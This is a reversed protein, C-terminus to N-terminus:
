IADSKILCPGGGSKPSDLNDPLSKGLGEALLKEKMDLLTKRAARIKGESSITKVQNQPGSKLKKIKEAM